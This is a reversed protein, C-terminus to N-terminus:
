YTQSGLTLRVSERPLLFSYIQLIIKQGGCYVWMHMCINFKFNIVNLNFISIGHTLSNCGDKLYYFIWDREAEEM